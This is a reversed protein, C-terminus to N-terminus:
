CLTSLLFCWHSLLSNMFESSATEDSVSRLLLALAEGTRLGTDPAYYTSLLETKQSPTLSM